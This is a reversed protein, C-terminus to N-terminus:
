VPIEFPVNQATDITLRYRNSHKRDVQDLVGKIVQNNWRDIVAYAGMKLLNPLISGDVSCKWVSYNVLGSPDADNAEGRTQLKISVCEATLLLIPTTLTPLDYPNDTILEPITFVRLRGTSSTGGFAKFIAITNIKGLDLM